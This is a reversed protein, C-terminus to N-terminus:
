IGSRSSLLQRDGVLCASKPIQRRVCDEGANLDKANMAEVEVRNLIELSSGSLAGAGTKGSVYRKALPICAEGLHRRKPVTCSWWSRRLQMSSSVRMASTSAKSSEPRLPKLCIIWARHRLTTPPDNHRNTFCLVPLRLTPVLVCGPRTM